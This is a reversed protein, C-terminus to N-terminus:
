KKRKFSFKQDQNNNSPNNAPIEPKKYMAKFEAIVKKAEEHEAKFANLAKEVEDNKGRLAELEAKLKENEAKLMEDDMGGAPRIENLIGGEFVYITGDPMTFEGAAPAGAVTASVGVVIQSVDTISSGFDLETGNVDNVVMAKPTFFTEVKLMFKEIISLKEEVQKLEMKENKNINFKAVAKIEPRVIKAFGLQEIQEPTMYVEEAMFQGIINEDTGTAEAYRKACDKEYRKMEKSVADLYASDGEATTWPNHILFRGKSPNFYRNESHPILFLDVAMSMVDGTNKSIVTKGTSIIAEKMRLGEDIDGGPSDILLELVSYKASNKLHILLEPMGFYKDDSQDEEPKKGIIGNIPISYTDM